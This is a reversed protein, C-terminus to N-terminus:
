EGGERVKAAYDNAIKIFEAVVQQQKLAMYDSETVYRSVISGTDEHHKALEELTYVKNMM